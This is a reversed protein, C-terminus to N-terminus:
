ELLGHEAAWRAAQQRNKTNTKRLISTLHRKVTALAITRAEAIDANSLGEAALRLVAVETESLGGPYSPRGRRPASKLEDLRARSQNLWLGAGCGEFSEIARELRRLATARQGRRDAVEALGALNRGLEIPCGERRAWDAGTRYWREADDVRDFHLALAGRLQDLGPAGFLFAARSGPLTELYELADNLLADDGLAFLADDLTVFAHLEPRMFPQVDGRLADRWRAFEAHAEAVGRARWTIRARTGHWLMAREPFPPEGADIALAHARELDGALEACEANHLVLVRPPAGPYREATATSLDGRLLSLTVENVGLSAAAIGMVDDRARVVARVDELWRATERLRGAEILFRAAMNPVAYRRFPPGGATMHKHADDLLPLAADLGRRLYTALVRRFVAEAKVEGVGHADALQEAEAAADEAEDDFWERSLRLLLTATLVADRRDDHSLAERVLARGHETRPNVMQREVVAWGFGPWDELKRYAEVARELTNRAVVYEANGRQAHGLALLLAARQGHPDGDTSLVGIADEYHKSAESWAWMSEAAQGALESYRVARAAMSHDIAAAAVFQEALEPAHVEEGAANASELAEALKVHLEARQRAPLTDILAERVLDHTFRYEVPSESAVLLGAAVAQEAMEIAAVTDRGGLHTLLGLGVARDLLALYRLVERDEAAFEDLRREIAASISRPLRSLLEVTSDGEAMAALLERVFYPNGGTRDYLAQVLGTSPIQGTALTLWGVLLTVELGSLEVSLFDDARSLAAVTDGVADLGSTRCTVAVLVRSDTVSAALLELLSRSSRDAWQLDDIVVVLPSAEGVERLLRQIAVFLEFRASQPDTPSTESEDLVGALSPVVRALAARSEGLIARLGDVGGLASQLPEEGAARQLADLIQIWPWYARVGEIDPARGWLVTAGDARATAELERVLRTKGIGADGTVLAVGGRGDRAREFAALLEALQRDRGVFPGPEVMDRITDIGSVERFAVL